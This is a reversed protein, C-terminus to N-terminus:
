TAAFAPEHSAMEVQESDVVSPSAARSSAHQRQKFRARQVATASVFALRCLGFVGSVIAMAQALIALSSQRASVSVQVRNIQKNRQLM